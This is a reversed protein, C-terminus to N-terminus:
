QFSNNKQLQPWFLKKNFVFEQFISIFLAVYGIDLLSRKFTTQNTTIQVESNIRKLSKLLEVALMPWVGVLMKNNVMMLAICGTFTSVTLFIASCCASTWLITIKWLFPNCAKTSNKVISSACLTCCANFPHSINAPHQVSFISKEFTHM